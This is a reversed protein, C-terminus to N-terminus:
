QLWDRRGEVFRHELYALVARQQPGPLQDLLSVIVHTIEVAKSDDDQTTEITM